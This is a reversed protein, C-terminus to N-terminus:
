ALLHWFTITGSGGHEAILADASTHLGSPSHQAVDVEISGDARREVRSVVGTHDRDGSTDWDFQVVDGVRVRSRQADTLPEALRPHAALWRAFATSRIWASTYANRGLIQSHGWDATM